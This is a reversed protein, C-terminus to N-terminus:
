TRCWGSCRIPRRGTLWVLYNGSKTGLPWLVPATRRARSYMRLHHDFFGKVLWGDVEGDRAGLAAGVKSWWADSAEGFLVDFVSRVRSAFDLPHGPDTVLVPSVEVPYGVPPEVPLGDEGTLMGPSCAPLPDFPDPEGPWDRDGTALRVDFRGVGVGVAWSVLGAALAAQNLVLGHDDADEVEGAGIDDCDKAADSVSFGQAISRQDEESIGYLEFCVADIEALVEALEAAVAAVRASWDAVSEGFSGGGFQLVAPLVFAHSTEFATDLSRPASWSRRALATLARADETAINPVPTRGILGAEYQVGGVKGAFLAMLRDFAISNM